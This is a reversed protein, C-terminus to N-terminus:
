LPICVTIPRDYEATPPVHSSTPSLSPTLWVQSIQVWLNSMNVPASVPSPFLVCYRSQCIEFAREKIKIFMGKTQRYFIICHIQLCNLCVGQKLSMFNSSDFYMATFDIGHIKLHYRKAYSNTMRNELM